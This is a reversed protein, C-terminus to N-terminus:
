SHTAGGDVTLSQGTLFGAADSLLFLITGVLDESVQRRPICQMAIIAAKAKDDVTERAIGTEVSGPLIANVTIGSAGLERALSRSMGVLASKSTIYHLYNPRGLSVAGSAMNVIRGFGAKRMHPAVAQACLFPGNVNVSMVRNWEDLTIQEFPKMKLASFLAANNILGDIKGYKSMVTDVMAGISAPDAVDVRVAFAEAPASAAAEEAAAINVDAAVAIAGVAALSHVLVRGIGQGGGTVIVVRGKPIQSEAINM